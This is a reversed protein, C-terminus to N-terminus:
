HGRTHMTWTHEDIKRTIMAAADTRNLFTNTVEERTMYRKDQEDKLKDLEEQIFSKLQYFTFRNWLSLLAIAITFIGTVMPWNM